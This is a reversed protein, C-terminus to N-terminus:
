VGGGPSDIIIRVKEISNKPLDKKLAEATIDYGVEGFLYITKM